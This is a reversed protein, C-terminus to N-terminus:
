DADGGIVEIQCSRMVKLAAEHLDPTVGACCDQDVKIDNNPLAGKLMMANTIVCIDTCLGIMEVSILEQENDKKLQEILDVSGFGPKLFIRAGRLSDRISEHLMWGDTGEICHEVPLHKGEYTNLYDKPHTDMTVYVNEIPYSAIKAKVHDLIAVAEKTGLSGDVFDKQVDVVVLINRM